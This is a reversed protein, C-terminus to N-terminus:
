YEAQPGFLGISSAYVVRSVGLLRAAEFINLTGVINLTVSSPLDTESAPPLLYALHVIKDVSYSKVTNMLDYLQSVNGPVFRFRSGYREVRKMFMEPPPYIDMSIIDSDGSELLLSVLYRGIFGSGGTILISM